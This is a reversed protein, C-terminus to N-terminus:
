RRARKDAWVLLDLHWDTPSWSTLHSRHFEASAEGFGPQGIGDTWAVAFPMEEPPHVGRQALRGLEDIEEPTGVRLELRPTQLRLGLLADLDIDALGPM